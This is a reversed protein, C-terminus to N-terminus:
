WIEVARTTRSNVNEPTIFTVGRTLESIWLSITHYNKKVLIYGVQLFPVAWMSHCTQLMDMAHIAMFMIQPHLTEYAQQM